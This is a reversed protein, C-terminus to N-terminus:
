WMLRILIVFRNQEQEDQKAYSTRDALGPRTHSYAALDSSGLHPLPLLAIPFGSHNSGQPPLRPQNVVDNLMRCQIIRFHTESGILRDTERRETPRGPSVAEGVGV